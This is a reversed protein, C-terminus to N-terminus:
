DRELIRMVEDETMDQTIRSLFVDDRGRNYSKYARVRYFMYPSHLGVLYQTYQLGVSAGHYYYVGEPDSSGNFFILYYDPVIPTDFITETVADWLIVANYGNIVITVSTPAKPPVYEGTGTLRIGLIPSNTSNNHIYLSDIVSGATQPSFRLEITASDGVAIQLPFVISTTTFQPNIHLYSVASITLPITGTNKIGISQIASQSGLYESGFNITDNTLLMIQSYSPIVNIYNQRTLTATSDYSNTITLSVTYVGASNFMHQPNHLASTSGDGFDWLWDTICGIGPSSFDTFQVLLPELGETVNANFYATPQQGSIKAVFIDYGGSNILSTTGFIKTGLFFGTVLSNGNIDTAIGRGDGSGTGAPQITWLWNGDTDLKAIFIGDGSSITLETPGFTATSLFSGTVYCNGSNDTAIGHSNDGSTGGAKNAWLFNGNTDLKSIFIDQSGSSTLSITGFTATGQFYGAIYSNGSSDTAICNSNEGSAGGAQVAWLWNGNPDLKAVSVDYGGSSILTTTGFTSTGAFYGTIYINGNNDTSIGWGEDYSTGGAKVAWLWSGNTSLKAVFIDNSGNSILQTTGFHITGLFYGVVYSNGIHDTTISYGFDSSAGVTKVVWLYNGNTDLKAIFTDQSGGSSTLSITGFTATGQFYGTVYANGNDDVDIGRGYDNSSGGAKVAWLWNSNADLKAIFIDESGSSTLSTTGFTVSGRFYGVVFSNGSSDTIINYVYSDSTGGTGGAQTAWCWEPAIQCYIFSCLIMLVLTIFLCKM